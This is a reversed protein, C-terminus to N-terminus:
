NSQKSGRLLCLMQVQDTCGERGRFTFRKLWQDNIRCQEGEWLIPERCAEVTRTGQALKEIAPLRHCRLQKLHLM